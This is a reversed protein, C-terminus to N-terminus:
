GYEFCEVSFGWWDESLGQFQNNIYEKIDPHIKTARHLKEISKAERSSFNNRITAYLLVYFFEVIIQQENDEDNSLEIGEQLVELVKDPLDAESLYDLSKVVLTKSFWWM